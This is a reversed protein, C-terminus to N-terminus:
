SKAPSMPTSIKATFRLALVRGTDPMFTVTVSEGVKLDGASIRKKGALETKKDAKFRTKPNVTFVARRGRVDEVVILTADDDKKVWLINGTVTRRVVFPWDPDAGSESTGMEALPVNGSGQAFATAAFSAAALLIMRLRTVLRGGGSVVFM